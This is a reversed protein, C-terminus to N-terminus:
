LPVFSNTDITSSLSHLIMSDLAIPLYKTSHVRISLSVDEPVLLIYPVTHNGHHDFMDASDSLKQCTLFTISSNNEDMHLQIDPLHGDRNVHVIEPLARYTYIKKFGSNVFIHTLQTAEHNSSQVQLITYFIELLLRITVIM